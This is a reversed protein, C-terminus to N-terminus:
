SVNIYSISSDSELSDQQQQVMENEEEKGLHLMDKSTDDCAKLHLSREVIVATSGLDRSNVIDFSCKKIILPWLLRKINM